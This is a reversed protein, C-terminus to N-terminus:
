CARKITARKVFSSVHYCSKLRCKNSPKCLDIEKTEACADITSTWLLRRVRASLITRFCVSLPFLALLSKELPLIWTRLLLKTRAHVFISTRPTAPPRLSDLFVNARLRPNDDVHPSPFVSWCPCAEWTSFVVRRTDDRYRKKTFDM